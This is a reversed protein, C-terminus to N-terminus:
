KVEDLIEKNLADFEGNAKQVYIGTLVFSLIILALGVYIGVSTIAGESVPTGLSAPFFAIVAVFAYYAILMVASLTWAFSSRKACLEQFKPNAKIREHIQNTM